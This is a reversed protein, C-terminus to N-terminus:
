AQIRSFGKALVAATDFILRLMDRIYPAHLNKSPASCDRESRSTESVAATRGQRVSKNAYTM